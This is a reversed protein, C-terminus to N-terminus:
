THEQASSAARDSRLKTELAAWSFTCSQYKLCGSPKRAHVDQRKNRPFPTPAAIPVGACAQCCLVFCSCACLASSQPSCAKWRTRFVFTQQASFKCSVQGALHVVGSRLLSTFGSTSALARRRCPLCCSSRCIWVPLGFQSLLFCESDALNLEMSAISTAVSPRLCRKFQSQINITAAM